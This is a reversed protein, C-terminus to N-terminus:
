HCPHPPHPQWVQPPLNVCTIQRFFNRSFRSGTYRAFRSGTCCVLEPLYFKHFPSVNFFLNKLPVSLAAYSSSTLEGMHNASFFQAFISKRHPASISKRRPLFVELLYFEHFPSVIFFLNKLPVSTSSSAALRSSTLKWMHNSSFFIRFFRSRTRRAIRSGARCFFKWSTFSMFHRYTSLYTRQRWLHPPHPQLVQLPLNVFFFDVYISKRHMECVSKRRLNRFLWYTFKDSPSADSFM